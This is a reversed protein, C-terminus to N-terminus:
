PPDVDCPTCQLIHLLKPAIFSSRLPILGNRTLTQTQRLDSCRAELTIWPKVVGILSADLLLADSPLMKSFGALSGEPSFLTKSIVECKGVILQIDIKAEERLFLHLDSAVISM